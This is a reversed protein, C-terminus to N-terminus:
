VGSKRVMEERHFALACAIQREGDENAICEAVGEQSALLHQHGLSPSPISRVKTFVAISAYSNGFNIGVISPTSVEVHAQANGNPVAGNQPM